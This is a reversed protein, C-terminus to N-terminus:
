EIVQLKCALVRRPALHGENSLSPQDVVSLPEQRTSLSRKLLDTADVGDLGRDLNMVSYLRQGRSLVSSGLIWAKGNSM